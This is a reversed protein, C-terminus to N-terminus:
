LYLFMASSWLVGPRFIDIHSFWLDKMLFKLKNFGGLSFSFYLFMAVAM